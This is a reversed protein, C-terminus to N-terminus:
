PLLMSGAKWKPAELRRQLELRERLIRKVQADDADPFESRIGAETWSCAFDFLKLSDLFKEGPSEMRARRVRDRFIDDALTQIDDVASAIALDINEQPLERM